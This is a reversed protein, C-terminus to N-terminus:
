KPPQLEGEFLNIVNPSRLPDFGHCDVCQFKRGGTKVVAFRM